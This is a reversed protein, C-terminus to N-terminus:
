VPAGNEGGTDGGPRLLRQQLPRQALRDVPLGRPETDDPAALGPVALGSRRTEVPSQGKDPLCGPPWLEPDHVIVARSDCLERERGVVLVLPQRGVPDVRWAPRRPTGTASDGFTNRECPADPLAAVM